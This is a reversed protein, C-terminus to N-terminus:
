ATPRLQAHARVEDEIPMTQIKLTWSPYEGKEISRFLDSTAFSANGGGVQTCGLGDHWVVEARLVTLPLWGFANM